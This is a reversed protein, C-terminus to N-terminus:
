LGDLEMPQSVKWQDWTAGLGGLRAKSCIYPMGFGVSPLASPKGPQARSWECPNARLQMQEMKETDWQVSWSIIQSTSLEFDKFWRFFFFLSSFPFSLCNDHNLQDWLKQLPIVLHFMLFISLIVNHIHTLAWHRYVKFSSIFAQDPGNHQVNIYFQRSTKLPAKTILNRIRTLLGKNTAANLIWKLSPLSTNRARDAWCLLVPLHTQARDKSDRPKRDNGTCNNPQETSFM